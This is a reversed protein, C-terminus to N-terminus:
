KILVPTMYLENFHLKALHEIVEMMGVRDLKVVAQVTRDAHLLSGVPAWVLEIGACHGGDAALIADHDSGVGSHASPLGM